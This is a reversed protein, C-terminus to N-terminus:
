LILLSGNDQKQLLLIVQSGDDVGSAFTEMRPKITRGLSINGIQLDDELIEPAIRRHETGGLGNAQRSNRAVALVFVLGEVHPM